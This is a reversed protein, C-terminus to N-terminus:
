VDNKAIIRSYFMKIVADLLPNGLGFLLIFLFIIQIPTLNSEPFGYKAFAYYIVGLLLGVTCSAILCKLLTAKIKLTEQDILNNLLDEVATNM